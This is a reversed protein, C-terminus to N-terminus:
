SSHDTVILWKGEIRKWILSYYGQLVDSTRTLKWNGIVLVTKFCIMEMSIIDFKLKGMSDKDPYSKQYKELINQWGFTIGAKGIFKLSDSKWYGEMYAELAGASWDKEQQKMVKEIERTITEDMGSKKEPQNCFSFVVLLTIISIVYPKM